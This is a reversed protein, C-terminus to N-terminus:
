LLPPGSSLPANLHADSARTVFARADPVPSAQLPDTYMVAISGQLVPKDPYAWVISRSTLTYDDRDHFFVHALPQRLLERLAAGNKAHIWVRPHLLFSLTSTYQPEDHGLMWTSGNVLWVDLEVDFGLRLAQLLYEPRNELDRNAGELNGRHSILLADPVSAADDVALVISLAWAFFALRRCSAYCM